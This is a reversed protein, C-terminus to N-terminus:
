HAGHPGPSEALISLMMRGFRELDHAEAEPLGSVNILGDAFWRTEPLSLAATTSGITFLLHYGGQSGEVPVAIMTEIEFVRGADRFARLLALMGAQGRLADIRM